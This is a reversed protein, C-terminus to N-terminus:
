ARRSVRPTVGRLLRTLVAIDVPKVLHHDFGAQAGRQRDHEQGWGTLAVLTMADGREARIRRCAAYGDLHPMGIDLIAVDPGFRAAEDVAAQGDHVERVECGLFSLLTSLMEAADRNDDAVLVRVGPAPLDRDDVRHAPETAAVVCSAPLRVEFTSGRGPGASRAAITGGHLEVLRRALALGIGLGGKRMSRANDTQAFLDFVRELQSSPIGVGEDQVAIVVSEGDRGVALRVTSECPSYKAANQLLNGLVQALRAADVDLTPPESLGEVVLHQRQQHLSEQALEVADAVIASLCAPARQLRLEGRSVRSVDLLDDVLRAMHTAQRDIVDRCRELLAPDVSGGRLLAAATRIPALPNRLEHALVAIFEDKQRMQERQADEAARRASIDEVIAIFHAPQGDAGRVASGTLNVLVASGDKRLYRKEITYSDLEGTALRRAQMVDAELDDPHTIDQFTRALLEARPYGTIDCLKNNVIVFRGGLDVEAIGVAANEFILRFREESIRLQAEARARPDAIRHPM